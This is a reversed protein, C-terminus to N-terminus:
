KTKKAETISIAECKSHFFFHCHTVHLVMLKFFPSNKKAFVDDYTEYPTRKREKSAGGIRIPKDDQFPLGNSKAFHLIRQHIEDTGEHSIQFIFM